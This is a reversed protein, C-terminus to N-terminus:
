ANPYPQPKLYRVFLIVLTSLKNEVKTPLLVPKRLLYEQTLHGPAVKERLDPM